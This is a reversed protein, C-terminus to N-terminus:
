DNLNVYMTDNLKWSGTGALLKLVSLIFSVRLINLTDFYKSLLHCFSLQFCTINQYWGDDYMLYTKFLTNVAIVSLLVFLISLLFPLARQQIEDVM